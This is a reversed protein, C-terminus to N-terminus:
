KTSRKVTHRNRARPGLVLYGRETPAGISEIVLYHSSRETLIEVALGRRIWDKAMEYTM